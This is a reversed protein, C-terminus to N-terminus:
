RGKRETHACPEYMRCIMSVERQLDELHLIIQLKSRDGVGSAYLGMHKRAFVDIRKPLSGKVWAPHGSLIM